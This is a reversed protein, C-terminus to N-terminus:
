GVMETTENTNQTPMNQAAMATEFTIGGVTNEKTSKVFYGLVITALSVVVGVMAYLANSDGTKVIMWQCFFLIEVCLIAAVILVIKSTSPMIFKPWYKMREERLRRRREISENKKQLKALKSDYQSKTMYVM